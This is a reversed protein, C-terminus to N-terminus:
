IAADECLSLICRQFEQELCLYFLYFLVDTAGFFFFNRNSIESFGPIAGYLYSRFWEASYPPISTGKRVSARIDSFKEPIVGSANSIGEKLIANYVASVQHDTMRDNGAGTRCLVPLRVAFSYVMLRFVMKYDLSNVIACSADSLDLHFASLSDASRVNNLVVKFVDKVNCNYSSDGSLAYLHRTAAFLSEGADFLLASLQAVANKEDRFVM